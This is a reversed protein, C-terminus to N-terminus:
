FIDGYMILSNLRKRPACELIRYISFESLTVINHTCASTYIYYIVFALTRPLVHVVHIVGTLISLIDRHKSTAFPLLTGPSGMLEMEFDKVKAFTAM